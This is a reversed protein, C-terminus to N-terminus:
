KLLFVPLRERQPQILVSEVIFNDHLKVANKLTGDASRQQRDIQIHNITFNAELLARHTKSLNTMLEFQHVVKKGYGNICKPGKFAPAGHHIFFRELDDKSIARIDKKFVEM